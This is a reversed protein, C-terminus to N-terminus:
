ALELAKTVRENILATEIPGAQNGIVLVGELASIAQDWSDARAAADAAYAAANAAAAARAAADAAHAAANAAYAAAAAAYAAADAAYAAANAANAAANAADADAYAAYAAAAAARLNIASTMAGAEKEFGAAILAKPAFVRVAQWALYEAREREVEATDATGALRVVFPQLKKTRIQDPMTDNLALAYNCIVKSFCPPMDEVNSVKKYEFGAAVIAAENICTGGNAGPFEHSGKKLEWNLLANFDQLQTM